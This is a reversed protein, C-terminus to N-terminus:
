LCMNQHHMEWLFSQLIIGDEWHFLGTCWYISWAWDIGSRIRSLLQHLWTHVRHRLSQTHLCPLPSQRHQLHSIWGQNPQIGFSGQLSHSYQCCWVELPKHCHIDSLLLLPLTYQRDQRCKSDVMLLEPTYRGLQCKDPNPRSSMMCGKGLQIQISLWLLWAM